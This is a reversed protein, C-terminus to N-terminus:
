VSSFFKGPPHTTSFNPPVLTPLNGSSIALMTLYTWGWYVLIRPRCSVSLPVSSPELVITGSDDAGGAAVVGLKLSSCVSEETSSASGLSGVVACIVGNDLSNACIVDLSSPLYQLVRVNESGKGFLGIGLALAQELNELRRLM